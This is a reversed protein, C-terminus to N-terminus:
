CSRKGSLVDPHLKVWTASGGDGGCQVVGADVAQALYEEPSSTGAKSYVASGLVLAVTSFSAKVIGNKHVNSLCAILPQFCLPIPVVPLSPPSNSKPTALKTTGQSATSLPPTSATFSTKSCSINDQPTPPNNSHVTSPASSKPADIEQRFWNPHLAIWAAGGRTKGGGLEIVSAKEALSFYNAFKTVGARKFVDKKCRGLDTSIDSRPPKMNGKSKELLLQNILPLFQPPTLRRIKDEISEILPARCGSYEDKNDDIVSMAQQSGSGVNSMTVNFDSIVSASSSSSTPSMPTVSPETAPSSNNIPPSILIYTDSPTHCSEASNVTHSPDDVETLLPSGILVNPVDDGLGFADMLAAQDSPLVCDDMVASVSDTNTSKPTTITDNRKHPDASSLPVVAPVVNQPASGYSISACGSITRTHLPPGLPASRADVDYPVAPLPSPPFNGLGMTHPVGPGNPNRELRAIISAYPDRTADQIEDATSVRDDALSEDSLANNKKLPSDPSRDINPVTQTSQTVYRARSGFRPRISPAEPIISLRHEM